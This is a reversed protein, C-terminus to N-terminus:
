SCQQTFLRKQPKEGTVYCGKNLEATSVKFEQIGFVPLKFVEGTWVSQCTEVSSLHTFRLYFKRNTYTYDTMTFMPNKIQKITYTTQYLCFRLEIETNSEHFLITAEMVNKRARSERSCGAKQESLSFVSTTVIQKFDHGVNRREKSM